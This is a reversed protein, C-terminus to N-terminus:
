GKQSSSEVVRNKKKKQTHITDEKHKHTPAGDLKLFGSSKTWWFLDLIWLLYPAQAFSVYGIQGM